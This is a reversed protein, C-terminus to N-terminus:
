SSCNCADTMSALVGLGWRLQGRTWSPPVPTPPPAAGHCWLACLRCKEPTRDLTSGWLWVEQATSDGKVREERGQPGVKRCRQYGAQRHHRSHMRMGSLFHHQVLSFAIACIVVNINDATNLVVLPPAPSHWFALSSCMCLRCSCVVKTVARSGLVWSSSGRRVGTKLCTSQQMCRTM